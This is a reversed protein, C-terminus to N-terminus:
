AWFTWPNSIPSLSMHLDYLSNIDELDMIQNGFHQWFLQSSCMQQHNKTNKKFNTQVFTKVFIMHSLDLLQSRTLLKPPSPNRCSLSSKDVSPSLAKGIWLFLFLKLIFHFDYIQLFVFFLRPCTHTDYPIHQFIISGTLRHLLVLFGQTLALIIMKHIPKCIVQRSESIHM